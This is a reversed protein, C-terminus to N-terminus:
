NKAALRVMAEDLIDQAAKDAGVRSQAADAWDQSARRAPEPLRAWAALAAAVQGRGLAADIQSVLAAPDDGAVEGIPTVRVVKSMNALLRDVVGGAAPTAAAALVAPAVRAFDAALAAASPAGHAALPKLAALKVPDAGLHDLATAEVPFPAGARLRDLLAQAVVALGAADRGPAVSEAPARSETKPAALTAELRDLRQTVPALDVPRRAIAALDAEVKALRDDLAGGAPAAGASGTANRPAASALALAKAADDRAAKAAEASGKTAAAASELAAIKQGLADRGSELAAVRKDLAALAAQADARPTRELNELRAVLEPDASSRSDLGWWAAGAVVAGAVAGVLASLALPAGLRATTEARPEPPPPPVFSPEPRPPRSEPDPPPAIEGEILPAERRRDRNPTAAGSFGAAAEPEAGAAGEGTEGAPDHPEAAPPAPEFPSREGAAPPEPRRARAADPDHTPEPITEDAM